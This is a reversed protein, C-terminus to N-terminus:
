AAAPTKCHLILQSLASRKTAKAATSPIKTEPENKPEAHVQLLTTANYDVAGVHFGLVAPHKALKGFRVVGAATSKHKSVGVVFCVKVCAKCSDGATRIM